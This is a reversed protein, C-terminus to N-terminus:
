LLQFVHDTVHEELFHLVVSFASLQLHGYLGDLLEEVGVQGLFVSQLSEDYLPRGLDYVSYLHEQLGIRVHSEESLAELVFAVLLELM